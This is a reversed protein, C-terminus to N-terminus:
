VYSPNRHTFKSVATAKDLKWLPRYKKWGSLYHGVETFLSQVRSDLLQFRTLVRDDRSVDDYFTFYVDEGGQQAIPQALECGGHAWRVFSRTTELVTRFLRTLIQYLESVPPVLVIEPASLQVRVRCLPADSKAIVALARDLNRAVLQVLAEYIMVEWHHYFVALQARAEAGVNVAVKTLLPGLNRYKATLVAEAKARFEEAAAAFEKVEPVAVQQEPYAPIPTEVRSPAADAEAEPAADTDADPKLENSLPQPSNTRMASLHFLKADRFM